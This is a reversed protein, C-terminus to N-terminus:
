VDGRERAEGAVEPRGTVAESKFATRPTPPAFFPDTLKLKTCPQRQLGPHFKGRLDLPNNPGPSRDEQKLQDPTGETNGRNGSQGKSGTAHNLVQGQEQSIELEPPYSGETM